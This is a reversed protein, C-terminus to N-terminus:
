EEIEIVESPDALRDGAKKSDITTDQPTEGIEKTQENFAKIAEASAANREMESAKEANDTAEYLAQAKKLKEIAKAPDTAMLEKAEDELKKAERAKSDAESPSSTPPTEIDEGGGIRLALLTGVTILTIAVAIGILLRTNKIKM